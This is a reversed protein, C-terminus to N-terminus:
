PTLHPPRGSDTSTCPSTAASRPPWLSQSSLDALAREQRGQGKSIGGPAAPGQAETSSRSGRFYWIGGGVLVALALIWLWRHSKSQPERQAPGEGSPKPGASNASLHGM